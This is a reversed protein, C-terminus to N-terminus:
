SSRRGDEVLPGWREAPLGGKKKSTVQEWRDGKGFKHLAEGKEVTALVTGDVPYGKSVSTALPSM